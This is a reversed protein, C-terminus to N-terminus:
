TYRKRMEAVLSGKVPGKGGAGRGGSEGVGGDGGGGVVGAGAGAGGGGEGGGGRGVLGVKQRFTRKVAGQELSSDSFRSPLGRFPESPLDPTVTEGKKLSVRSPIRAPSTQRLRATITGADYTEVAPTEFLDGCFAPHTATVMSLRGPTSRSEVGLHGSAGDYIMKGPTMPLSTADTLVEDTGGLNPTSSARLTDQSSRPLAGRKNAVSARITETSSKNAASGQGAVPPQGAVSRNMIGTSRRPILSRQQANAAARITDASPRSLLSPPLAGPYQISDRLPRATATGMTSNASPVRRDVTSVPAPVIIEASQPTYTRMPTIISPRRLGPVARIVNRSSRSTNQGDNMTPPNEDDGGDDTDVKSSATSEDPGPSNTYFSPVCSPRELDSPGRAITDSQNIAQLRQILTPSNSPSVTADVNVIDDVISEWASGPPANGPAIVPTNHPVQFYDREAGTTTDRTPTYAQDQDIFSSIGLGVSSSDATPLPPINFSGTTPTAAPTSVKRINLPAPLASKNRVHHSPVSAPRQPSFSFIDGPSVSSSPSNDDPNGATDRVEREVSGTTDGDKSTAKHTRSSSTTQWSRVSAADDQSYVSSCVTPPAIRQPSVALSTRIPRPTAPTTHMPPLPEVPSSEESENVVLTESITV